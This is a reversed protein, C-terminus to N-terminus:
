PTGSAPDLKEWDTLPYESVGGDRRCGDFTRREGIFFVLM